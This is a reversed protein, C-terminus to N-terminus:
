KRIKKNYIQAEKILSLDCGLREATKLIAATDKPFCHGGYGREETVTTHSHGIRIDEGVISSVIEYDVKASKCLDYIQNFFSVKLALFSNRFYKGLILEKPSIIKTTFDRDDFAIRFLAHWFGINKGGMYIHRTNYFDNLAHEARLFEPSFAINKEPFVDELMEWGELSITSKILIPIDIPCRELVEYVNKMECSGDHRSPTSVCVIVADPNGFESYGKEPDYISVKFKKSLVNEHAKGVFGYGAILINLSNKVSLEM